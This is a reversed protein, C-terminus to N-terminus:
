YSFEGELYKEAAKVCLEHDLRMDLEPKKLLRKLSSILGPLNNSFSWRELYSMHITGGKDPPLINPHFIKSRWTVRPTEYPYGSGLRVNLKHTFITAPSDGVLIPGPADKIVISIDLMDEVEIIEVDLNMNNLANIENEMRKNWMNEPLIKEKDRRILTLKDGNEVGTKSWAMDTSIKKSSASLEYNGELEWYKILGELTDEVMTRPDVDIEIQEGNSEEFIKLRLHM